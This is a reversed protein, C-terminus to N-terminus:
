PLMQFLKELYFKQYDTYGGVFDSRTPRYGFDPVAGNNEVAVGDPRYFLSKTMRVNFVSHSSSFDVEQVHGGAGVTRTGILKARGYGQLMAPFADGGSGSMEDILMVVPKTYRVNQPYVPLSGQFTTKTTLWEGAEWSKRVLQVVENWGRWALTTRPTSDLFGKFDLYEGKSALYEFQLGSFQRGIFLGTMQQLYDVSGGCNHDQDIVLGVTNAELESVAYEYLAFSTEFSEDESIPMYHPIRLYGINGRATPHYYAVFPKEMIMTAGEPIKVRTTGSCRYSFETPAGLLDNDSEALSVFAAPFRSPRWNRELEEGSVNEDLPEGSEIWNLAVRVTTEPASMPRITVMAPGTPVPMRTGSRQAVMMGARRLQGAEFGAGIYRALDKLVDAIPKGDLAVIEDGKKWPFTAATLLKTDVTEILVKGDILDTTFGLTSKHDTPISLGFHSDRFEAVFQVMLYYFDRNSTSAAIATRYKTELGLVNIGQTQQKYKLPGYSSKIQGLLQDFDQIKEEATLSKASATTVISTAAIATTMVLLVAIAAQQLRKGFTRTGCAMGM